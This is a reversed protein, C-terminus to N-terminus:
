HACTYSISTSLTCALMTYRACPINPSNSFHSPSFLAIYFLAPSVYMYMHLIHVLCTHIHSRRCSFPGHAAFFLKETLAPKRLYSAIAVLMSFKVSTPRITQSIYSNKYMSKVFSSAELRCNKYARYVRFSPRHLRRRLAVTARLNGVGRIHVSPLESSALPVWWTLSYVESADELKVLWGSARCAITVILMAAKSARGCGCRDTTLSRVISAM